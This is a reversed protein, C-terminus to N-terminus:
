IEDKYTTRYYSTLAAGDIHIGYWLKFMQLNSIRSDKGEDINTEFRQYSWIWIFMFLCYALKYISDLGIKADQNSTRNWILFYLPLQLYVFEDTLSRLIADDGEHQQVLLMRCHNLHPRNSKHMSLRHQPDTTQGIYRIGENKMVNSSKDYGLEDDFLIYTWARTIMKTLRLFISHIKSKPPFHTKLLIHNVDLDTATNSKPVQEAWKTM